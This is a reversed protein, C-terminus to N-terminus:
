ASSKTGLTRAGKRDETATHACVVILVPLMTPIAVSGRACYNAPALTVIVSLAVPWTIV